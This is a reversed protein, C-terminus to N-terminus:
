ADCIGIRINVVYVAHIIGFRGITGELRPIYLQFGDFVIYFFFQWVIQFLILFRISCLAQVADTKKIMPSASCMAGFSQRICCGGNRFKKAEKKANGTSMKERKHYFIYLPKNSAGKM